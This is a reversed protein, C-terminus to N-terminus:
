EQDLHEKKPFEQSCLWVPGKKGSKGWEPDESEEKWGGLLEWNEEAGKGISEWGNWDGQFLLNGAPHVLIRSSPHLSNGQSSKRSNKGHSPISNWGIGSSSGLSSGPYIGFGPESPLDWCIFAPIRSIGLGFRVDWALDRMGSAPFQPFLQSDSRSHNRATSKTNQKGNWAEMRLLFPPSHFQSELSNQGKRGAPPTPFGLFEAPIQSSPSRAGTDRLHDLPFQFALFQRSSWM